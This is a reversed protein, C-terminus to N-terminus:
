GKLFFHKSRKRERQLLTAVIKITTDPELEDWDYTQEDYYILTDAEDIALKSEPCTLLSSLTASGRQLRRKLIPPCHINLSDRIHAVNYALFSRCDVFICRHPKTRALNLATLPSIQIVDESDMAVMKIGGFVHATTTDKGQCHTKRNYFFEINFYIQYEAVCQTREEHSGRM